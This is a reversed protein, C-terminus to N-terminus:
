HQYHLRVMQYWPNPVPIQYLIGGAETLGRQDNDLNRQWLSYIMFFPHLVQLSRIQDQHEVTEM